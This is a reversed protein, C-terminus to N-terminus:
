FENVVAVWKVEAVGSGCGDVQDPWITTPLLFRSEHTLGHYVGRAALICDRIVLKIFHM